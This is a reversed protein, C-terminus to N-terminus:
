YNIVIYKKPGKKNPNIKIINKFKNNDVDNSFRIGSVIKLGRSMENWKKENLQKCEFRKGALPLKIGRLFELYKENIFKTFLIKKIKTYCNINNKM